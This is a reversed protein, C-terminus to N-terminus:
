CCLDRERTVVDHDLVLHMYKYIKSVGTKKNKIERKITHKKSKNRFMLTQSEKKM